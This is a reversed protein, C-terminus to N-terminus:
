LVLDREMGWDLIATYWSDQKQVSLLLDSQDM